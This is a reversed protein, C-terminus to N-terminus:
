VIRKLPVVNDGLIKRLQKSILAFRPEERTSDALVFFSPAAGCQPVLFSTLTPRAISNNQRNGRQRIRYRCGM